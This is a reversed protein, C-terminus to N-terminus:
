ARIITRVVRCAVILMSYGFLRPWRRTALYALTAHVRSDVFGTEQPAVQAEAAGRQPAGSAHGEAMKSRRYLNTRADNECWLGYDALDKGYESLAHFLDERFDTHSIRCLGPGFPGSDGQRVGEVQVPGMCRSVRNSPYESDHM